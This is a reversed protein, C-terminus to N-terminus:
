GTHNLFCQILGNARPMDFPQNALFARLHATDKYRTEGPGIVELPMARSINREAMLATTRSFIGSKTSNPSPLFRSSACQCAGERIAFAIASDPGVKRWCM